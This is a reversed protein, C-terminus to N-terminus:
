LSHVILLPESGSAPKAPRSALGVEIGQAAGFSPARPPIM